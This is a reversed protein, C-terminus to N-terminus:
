SLLCGLLRGALLLALVLGGLALWLRSSARRQPSRVASVGVRIIDASIRFREEVAEGDGSGLARGQQPDFVTLDHEAALELAAACLDQCRGPPADLPLGLDVGRTAGEGESFLEHHLGAASARQRSAELAQQSLAEEGRLFLEYRQAM